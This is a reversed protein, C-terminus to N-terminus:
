ESVLAALLEILQWESYSDVEEGTSSNCTNRAECTRPWNSLSLVYDGNTPPQYITLVVLVIDEQSWVYIHQGNLGHAAKVQVPPTYGGFYNANLVWWHLGYYDSQATLSQSVFDSSLLRTGAWRGGRAFLVGFRAFDEPRMDICCYTMPNTGTPDFWLGVNSMDIGIPTLIKTTLYTHADEGTARRILPELLQSTTNSYLFTVGPQNVLDQNLAFASQDAQSFLDTGEGPLGARMELLVRIPINEKDTGKWESLFDSARQDLSTILGEDIAVGVAAAYLSKAVSWSTGLDGAVYGDAYREGVVYGNRVLMAAQTAADGFIHALVDVVGDENLGQTAANIRTFGWSQDNTDITPTWDDLYSEIQGSSSRAADNGVAGNVLTDGRFGFLYRLFLLGDTLAGNSEDRDIDVSSSHGSLYAEIEAASSRDANTAVVGDTLSSGSFGFLHRLLLLGDTLAGAEGDSDIDFSFAAEESWSVQLLLVWLFGYLGILVRRKMKTPLQRVSIDSSNLGRPPDNSAGALNRNFRCRM